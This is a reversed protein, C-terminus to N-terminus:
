FLCLLMGGEGLEESFWDSIWVAEDQDVLWQLPKACSIRLDDCWWGRCDVKTVVTGAACEAFHNGNDSIWKPAKM